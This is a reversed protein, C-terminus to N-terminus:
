IREDEAEKEISLGYKQDYRLRKGQLECSFAEDLVLFLEGRLWHSREWAPPILEAKRAELEEITKRINWRKALESMLGVSCGAIAFGLDDEPMRDHEILRGGDIWPLLHLGDRLKQIVLVEISGMSDRVSAEGQKGAAEDDSFELWGVLTPWGRAPDGLQFAKANVKKDAALKDFAAKASAYHEKEAEPVQIDGGYASRVLGAIDDPLVLSSPLLYKTNMLSYEGYIAKTGGDFEETGMVLCLPKQLKAPRSHELHRHLRGIRQILLDMPCLDTLMLDFDIDLSQEIVQTGVVIKKKPRKEDAKPGLELLLAAEKESRDISLFRSHLLDVQAAGFHAALRQALEQARGVTSVVIGACGGGSLLDELKQAIDGDFREILVEKQRQEGADDPVVRRTATGDSLTLVPYALDAPSDDPEAGTYAALLERRTLPPLTASLVVVPVGYAGLWRLARYLYSDMYADYAHVEDVVIVKNALGLHRLALHKHRLAGMLLQDITGVAFDALLGTKRGTFWDHVAVGEGEEDLRFKPLATYSTNFKSKGHALFLSHRDASVKGIWAQYRNFIGDATARTPLAFYVGSRGAKQAFIEAMALAAETKGMGMPAEIIAIGPREAQNIADIVTRQLENPPFGFRDEFVDEDYAYGEQGGFPDWSQPLPVDGGGSAIWDAMIVLGTYLMQQPISLKITRLAELNLGSWELAKAFLEDQAARWTESGGDINKARTKSKSVAASSPPKGHHGGLVVAVSSDVGQRELILQSTLSHHVVGADELIPDSFGADLVRERLEPDINPAKKLQFPPSAKGLDHCFALFFFLKEATEIGSLRALFSKLGIPLWERWMKQAVEGTERMHDLLSLAERRGDATKAWLADLATLEM